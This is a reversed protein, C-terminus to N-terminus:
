KRRKKFLYIIAGVGCIILVIQMPDLRFTHSTQVKPLNTNSIVNSTNALNQNFGQWASGLNQLTDMFAM